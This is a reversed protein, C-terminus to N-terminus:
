SKLRISSRVAGPQLGNKGQSKLSKRLKQSKEYRM